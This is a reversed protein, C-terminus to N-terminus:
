NFIGISQKVAAYITLCLLDQHPIKLFRKINKEGVQYFIFSSLIMPKIPLAGVLSILRELGVFELVM